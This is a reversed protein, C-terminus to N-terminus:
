PCSRGQIAVGSSNTGLTSGCSNRARILYFASGPPSDAATTATIATSVCTTAALTIFSAAGTSRLADYSVPDNGTSAPAQWALAIGGAKGLTLMQAETPPSKTVDVTLAAPASTVPHGNTVIVDYNAADIAAVPSLTLQATRAGSVNGGNALNVGNRRWQYSLTGPGSAAVSFTATGNLCAAVPQPQQSIAPAPPLYIALVKADGTPTVTVTANPSLLNSLTTNPSLVQWHDFAFGPPAPLAEIPAQVIGNWYYGTGQGNLTDIRWQVPNDYIGSLNVTQGAAAGSVTVSTQSRTSNGFAVSVGAPVSQTNWRNFFFGIFYHQATTADTTIAAVSGVPYNGSGSTTPSVGGTTVNLTYFAGAGNTRSATRTTASGFINSVVAYYNGPTATSYSANMATSIATNTAADYWQWIMPQTGTVAVSFASATGSAVSADVPQAIIVPPNGLSGLNSAMRGYPSSVVCFFGAGDDAATLGSLTLTASKASANGMVAIRNRYWQFSLPGTGSATVSFTAGAGALLQNVPQTVIAPATGALPTVNVIQSTGGTLGTAADTVKVNIVYRGTATFYATPAPQDPFNFLVAAPGRASWLYSLAGSAGSVSLLPSFAAPAGAASLNVAPAGSATASNALTALPPQPGSPTWQWLANGGGANPATIFVHTGDTELANPSGSRVTADTIPTWSAGDWRYVDNPFGTPTPSLGRYGIAIFSEGSRPTVMKIPNTFNAVSAPLGTQIQRYLGSANIQFVGAGSNRDNFTILEGRGDTNISFQHGNSMIEDANIYWPVGSMDRQPEYFLPDFWEWTIGNDLSHQLPTEGGAFIEGWPTRTLSFNYGGVQVLPRNTGYTPNVLWGVPGTPPYPVPAYVFDYIQSRLTWNIGDPSVEVQNQGCLMLDGFDDRIYNNGASAWNLQVGAPTFSSSQWQGAGSNYNFIYPPTLPKPSIRAVPQQQKNLCTGYLSNSHAANDLGTNNYLTWAAGPLLPASAIQPIFQSPPIFQNYGAWVTQGDPSLQLDSAGPSGTSLMSWSGGTAAAAGVAAFLTLILVTKKM